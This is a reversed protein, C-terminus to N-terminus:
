FRVTLGSQFGLLKHGDIDLKPLNAPAGSGSFRYGTGADNQMYSAFAYVTTRKSLDYYAGFNAGKAGADGTSQDAIKGILGGVRLQPTVRYDASLSYVNFFRRANVADTATNAIAGNGSLSGTNGLIAAATLGDGNSTIDNSRVYSLYAKGQGYDYNVYVNHYQIKNKVLNTPVTNQALGAYGVRYPGNNYDVALQYIAGQSPALVAGSLQEALAYHVAGQLGNIRKTKFSMDNDYRSPVAGFSNTVSGFTTRGTYDIWDGIQQIETNQRGIRFEGVPTNIGVWAQRDFLRNGGAGTDANISSELQFKAEYGKGMDEVGKFGFRSRLSTGDNLATISKGSDSHIYGIYQDVNGYITVNSQAQAASCAALACLTAIAKKM